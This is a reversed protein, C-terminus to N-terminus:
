VSIKMFVADMWYSRTFLSQAGGKFFNRNTMIVVPRSGALRIEPSRSDTDTDTYFVSLIPTKTETDTDAKLFDM